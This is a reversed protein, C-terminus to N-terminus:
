LVNGGEDYGTLICCDSPGVVRFALAPVGRELSDMIRGADDQFSGPEFLSYAYGAADFARRIPEDRDSTINRISYNTFDWNGPNLTFRFAAGSAGM